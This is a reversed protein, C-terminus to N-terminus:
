VVYITTEGESLVRMEQARNTESELQVTKQMLDKIYDIAQSISLGRLAMFESIECLTVVLDEM